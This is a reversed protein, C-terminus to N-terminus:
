KAVQLYNEVSFVGPVTNAQVEAIQRHMDTNVVGVLAVNGNKVLIHMAHPGRTITAARLDIQVDRIFNQVDVSSFGAGPVYRRMSPHGYIAIYVGTRIRDDNPSNPLVEILNEVIEVGEIRRVVEFAGSKVTPSFAYGLLVVKNIGEVRYSVSDFVSYQPLTVLAKQVEGIIAAQRQQMEEATLEPGGRRLEPQAQEDTVGAMSPSRGAAAAAIAQARQAVVQMDVGVAAAAAQNVALTEELQLEVPLDQARTGDVMKRLNEAVREAVMEVEDPANLGAM